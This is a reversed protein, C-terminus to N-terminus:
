FISIESTALKSINSELFRYCLHQHAPQDAGKNKVFGSSLNEQMLAWISLYVCLVDVYQRSYNHNVSKSNQKYRLDEIILLLMEM